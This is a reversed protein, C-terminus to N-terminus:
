ENGDGQFSDIGYMFSSNLIWTKNNLTDSKVSLIDMDANRSTIARIKELYYIKRYLYMNRVLESKLIQRNKEVSKKVENKYEKLTSEAKKIPVATANALAIAEAVGYVDGNLNCLLLLLLLTKKIM